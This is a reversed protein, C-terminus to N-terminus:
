KIGIFSCLVEVTSRQDEKTLRRFLYGTGVTVTRANNGRGITINM